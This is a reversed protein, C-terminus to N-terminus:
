RGPEAGPLPAGDRYYVGRASNYSGGVAQLFNGELSRVFVVDPSQPRVVWPRLTWAMQSGVIASLALFALGTMRRRGGRRLLARGFFLLGGLGGVGCCAVILLISGHYGLMAGGLLVLPATAAMLLAALALAALVGALDRRLDSRGGVAQDLAGLAPTVLGATLLLVLPLKIAAFVVQLGGRQWGIAAGLVAAATAITIVCTRVLDGLAEGRDIRDLVRPQDRLLGDVLAVGMLPPQPERAPASRAASTVGAVPQPTPRGASPEATAEPTPEPKPDPTPEPAATQPQDTRPAGDGDAGALAERAAARRGAASPDPAAVDAALLDLATATRATM